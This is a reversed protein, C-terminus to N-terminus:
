VELMKKSYVSKPIAGPFSGGAVVGKLNQSLFLLQYFVVRGKDYDSTIPAEPSPALTALSARQAATVNNVFSLRVPEPLRSFLRAVGWTRSYNRSANFPNM